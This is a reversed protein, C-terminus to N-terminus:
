FPIDDPNIDGDPSVKDSSLSFGQEGFTAEPHSLYMVKVFKGSVNQTILWVKVEKGIWALSDDGFAEILNNISTQNLSANKEEEKGEKNKFKLLFVDQMGFDSPVKVGENAIVVLDGDRVDEGKKIYQGVSVKKQYKSM